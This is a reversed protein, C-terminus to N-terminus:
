ESASANASGATSQDGNDAPSTGSPAERGDDPLFVVVRGTTASGELELSAGYGRGKGLRGLVFRIAWPKESRVAKFLGSEAADLVSQRGEDRANILDQNVVVRDKLTSLAIGLREATHTMVGGCVILANAIEDNTVKQM